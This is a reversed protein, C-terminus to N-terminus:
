LASSLEEKSALHGDIGQIIGYRKNFKKGGKNEYEIEFVLRISYDKVIPLDIFIVEIEEEKSFIEGTYNEFSLTGPCFKTPFTLKGRDRRCTDDSEKNNKDINAKKIIFNINNRIILNEIFSFENENEIIKININRADNGNNKFHIIHVNEGVHKFTPNPVYGSFYINPIEKRFKYWNYMYVFIDKLFNYM